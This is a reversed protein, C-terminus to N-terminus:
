VLLCFDGPNMFVKSLIQYPCSFRGDDGMEEGQFWHMCTHNIYTRWWHIIQTSFMHEPARHNMLSLGTNPLGGILKCVEKCSVHLTFKMRKTSLQTQVALLLWYSWMMSQDSYSRMSGMGFWSHSKASHFFSSMQKRCPLRSSGESSSAEDISQCSVWIAPWPALQNELKTRKQLNFFRQNENKSRWTGPECRLSSRSSGHSTRSLASQPQLEM